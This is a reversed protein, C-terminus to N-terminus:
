PRYGGHRLKETEFQLNALYKITELLKPLETPDIDLDRLAVTTYPPFPISMEGIKM